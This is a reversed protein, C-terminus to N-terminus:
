FGTEHEETRWEEILDEMDGIFFAVGTNAHKDNGDSLLTLSKEVREKFDRANM